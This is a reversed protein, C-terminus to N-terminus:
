RYESILRTLQELQMHVTPSMERRKLPQRHIAMQMPLIGNVGERDEYWGTHSFRRPTPRQSPRLSPTLIMDRSKAAGSYVKLDLLKRSSGDMLAAITLKWWLLRLTTLDLHWVKNRMTPALLHHSEAGMAAVMSPRPKRPKLPKNERLMRQVSSRSVVMKKGASDPQKM